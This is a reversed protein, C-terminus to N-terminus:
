RVSLGGIVREQQGILMPNGIPVVSVFLGYSGRAGTDVVIVTAVDGEVAVEPDDVRIEATIRWADRGDVSIAASGQDTRGSFRQYFLESGTMCTLVTEAAQELSDYGPRKSLAGLSYVAIWKPEVQRGVSVVKTAFTFAADIGRPEFGNPSPATLGGGRLVSGPAKGGEPSGATCADTLPTVTPSPEATPSPTESPTESPSASPSESPSESPSASASTEAAASSGGDDDVLARVGVFGGVAVGAVLLVALVVLAVKRGSDGGSPPPPASPTVMPAPSWGPPPQTPMPQTPLPPATPPSPPPPPPPAASPPAAAGPPAVYPSPSTEHSWHVGNWYRFSNPQGSPDPYWGPSSM